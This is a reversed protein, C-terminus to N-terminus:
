FNGILNLSPKVIISKVLSELLLDQSIWTVTESFTISFIFRILFNNYRIFCTMIVENLTVDAM